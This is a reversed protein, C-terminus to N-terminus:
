RRNRLALVTMPVAGVLAVLAVLKNGSINAAAIAVLAWVIAAGYEPARSLRQVLGGTVLAGALAALAWGTEGFAVGYGAGILALSVFAAATLWGALLAVPFQLLWRDKRPCRLLAWIATGLMWFILVTAIVPQKTAVGIWVTGPGLCLILPLRTREWAEDQGRKALGFGASALLWIYIVGWISFAYGAPQAPPNVQPVPFLAPDYGGFGGTLVPSLVFFLTACFTFVSKIPDIM